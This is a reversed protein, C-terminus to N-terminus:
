VPLLQWQRDRHDDQARYQKIVTPANTDARLLLGSNRNAIEYVRPTDTM